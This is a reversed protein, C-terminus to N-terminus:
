KKGGKLRKKFYKIANKIHKDVNFDNYAHAYDWGFIGNGGFTLGCNVDPDLNDYHENFDPHGKPLKVYALPHGISISPHHGSLSFFGDGEDKWTGNVAKAREKMAKTLKM